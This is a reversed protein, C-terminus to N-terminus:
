MCIASMAVRLHRWARRADGHVIRVRHALRLLDRLLGANGDAYSWGRGVPDFLSGQCGQARFKLSKLRNRAAPEGNQNMRCHTEAVPVLEDHIQVTVCFEEDTQVESIELFTEYSRSSDM